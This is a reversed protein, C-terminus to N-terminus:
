ALDYSWSRFGNCSSSLGRDDGIDPSPLLSERDGGLRGELPLRLLLLVSCQDVDEGRALCDFSSATSAVRSTSEQNEM